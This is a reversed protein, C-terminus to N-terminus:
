FGQKRMVNELQEIHQKMEALQDALNGTVRTKLMALDSSLNNVTQTLKDLENQFYVLDFDNSRDFSKEKAM